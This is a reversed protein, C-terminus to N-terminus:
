KHNHIRHHIVCEIQKKKSDVCVIMYRITKDSLNEIKDNFCDFHSKIWCYGRRVNGKFVERLLRHLKENLEERIM